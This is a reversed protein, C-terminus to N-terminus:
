RDDGTDCIDKTAFVREELSSRRDFFVPRFNTNFFEYNIKFVPDQESQKEIEIFDIRNEKLLSCLEEKSNTQYIKKGIVERNLTNFGAGWAFYPWGQMTRRGAFSVPNYIRFTTLFVASTDTNELAWKALPQMEVDQYVITGDNKIPIADVLGSVTLFLLLVVTAIRAGRGLCFLRYLLYATFGNSLILWLNFFKHNGPMDPSFRLLNGIIFSTLFMLFIKKRQRDVLFFSFSITFFSLGLNFIWYRIFSIIYSMGRNLVGYPMFDIPILHSVVLYGPSISFHSEFNPSSQQLWLIQPLAILTAVFIVLLSKKREPFLLIFLWLFGYLCIFAQGHWLVLLGTILGIFAKRFYGTDIEKNIHEDIYHILVLLVLAFGFALHRQNIYINWNWFASIINGDWPGFAVYEPLNWWSEILNEISKPPYKKLFEVFSLSSNFLFLLVSVFGVFRSGFFLRKSFYYILVILCTYSLASPINLAYDLPIGMRELIGVMFDFMFHYRVIEHAYLPHELSLNNGFSFSRILPIHFGFDSWIFRTIKIEHSKLDYDFTSSFLIWSFVFAITFFVVHSPKLGLPSRFLARQQIVFALLIVTTITFGIVMAGETIRYFILSIIFVLWLSILTGVIYASAIRLLNTYKPFFRVSLLYGFLYSTILFIVAIVAEM